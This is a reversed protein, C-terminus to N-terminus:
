FGTGEGHALVRLLSPDLGEAEWATRTREPPELPDEDTLRFTGWHMPIMVGRGGLDLYTRVAEEPNMHAFKMFWRPEYAGIPLLACDFPGLREGITSFGGFYGSDGAFYIRKSRYPDQAELSEVVWGSWLRRNASFADRKTWHQAPTGTVRLRQGGPGPVELEEWWALERVRRIGQAQLWARYGLPVIWLTDRGPGRSLARVTDRDLHDYHDHSLLVVDIRPLAELALGPRQLRTPGAWSVPGIRHSWVPDTLLNFAGLRVLFTAHGVWLAGDLGDLQEVGLGAVPLQDPSPNPPLASRMRDLNWRILDPLGKVQEERPVWGCFFRGRPDQRFGYQEGNGSAM